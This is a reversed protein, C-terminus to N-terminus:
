KSKILELKEIPTIKNFERKNLSSNKKNEPAEPFRLDEYKSSLQGNVYSDSRNGVVHYSFKVNSNGGALEKVEFGMKSKNIVYVGNCDGELQIFVRLEHKENVTINNSFIPDLTIIAKGNELQGIGYDELLVEPAEAAFMIKENNNADKIVTSVTGGGIIKYQTGAVYAAVRVNVDQAATVSDRFYGGESATTNGGWAFGYVGTQRGNFSGGTGTTLFYTTALGNGGAVVGTGTANSNYFFAGMGRSGAAQGIVGMGSSTGAVTSNGFVGVGNGSIQGYVSTATAATSTNVGFVGIATASSTQGQVGVGGGTGVHIGIVGRGTGGDTQGHIASATSAANFIGGFFARGTGTQQSHISNVSTNSVGAIAENAGTAFSSFVSTGGFPATGNVVVQGTSMIRMRELNTTRFKVDAANISGMFDTTAVPNNGTTLWAAQTSTFTSPQDTTITVTGNANFQNTTINWTPGQPGQPGTLGIPGQPGTAGTAGTLGIPGQPGAPGTAGTPGAPGTLGIPGQPGQPGTAGTAGTLGIPGQPGAPGAPGTLGIPGQPGLAQVWAAGDWYWYGIAGGTMATNTNYVLLSTAPAPITAVDNTSTLAVRPVLLGKNTFDVDLGASANPLAGTTNIGVNQTFGVVTFSAFSLAIIIKKM